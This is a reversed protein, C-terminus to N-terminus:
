SGRRPTGASARRAMAPPGFRGTRSAEATKERRGRVDDHNGGRAGPRLELRCAPRLGAGQGELFVRLETCSGYVEDGCVFDFGLGDARADSLIDIALQGKTRFRLNLPLGTVLSKMPDAM